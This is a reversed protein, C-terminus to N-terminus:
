CRWMVLRKQNGFDLSWMHLHVIPPAQAAGEVHLLADRRLLGPAGLDAAGPQGRQHAALGTIVQQTWMCDADAM